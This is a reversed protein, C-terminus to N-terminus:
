DRRGHGRPHSNTQGLKQGGEIKRQLWWAGAAGLTGMLIGVLVDSPYHVGVHLRSYAMMVAQGICVAKMWKEPCFRMWTLGAGFAATTHGSPFSHPDHEEVLPILGEIVLFPRLRGFLPKLIVNTLIAGLLLAVLAWLGVKLTAPIALLVVSIVIWLLGSNGMQTFASLVGDAVPNRLTEQIWLLFAPEWSSLWELM